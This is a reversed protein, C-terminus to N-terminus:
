FEDAPLDRWRMPPRFSMGSSVHPFLMFPDDPYAGGFVMGHNMSTTPEGEQPIVRRWPGFPRVVWLNPRRGTTPEFSVLACPTEDRDLVLYGDYDM